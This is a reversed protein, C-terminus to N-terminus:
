DSRLCGWLNTRYLLRSLEYTVRDEFQQYTEVLHSHQNIIFKNVLINETNTATCSEWFGLLFSKEGDNTGMQIDSGTLSNSMTLPM